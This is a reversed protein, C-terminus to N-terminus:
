EELGSARVLPDVTRAVARGHGEANHRSGEAMMALVPWILRSGADMARSMEAMDREVRARAQHDGRVKRNWRRQRNMEARKSM